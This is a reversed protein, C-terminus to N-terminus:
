LPTGNVKIAPSFAGSAHIKVTRKWVKDGCFAFLTNLEPGGLCTGIVRSRDPMPLIVQTPGDDACIQIGWRTAVLMQGEKAYCVSEAGADDEWDPVHLWFFREMNALSGDAQIQYSYVWKSRGDAVSLFGQDPRMALGTPLKIPAEISTPKGDKIMWIKGPGDAKEGAATVFLGGDPTALLYHGLVGKAAVAGKGSADYRMVNGTRSSVTYIEDQAGVALGSAHADAAFVTVKGDLGLHLIKGSQADIFFLEGKSNCAPSRLDGLGKATLEWNQGPLIVDRVRPASTGPQVPEPWGKWIFRMAEPFSENWGTCHGGNYIHFSYDYGSFKLAKDIEQDLLFWDGACNEMDHTATTLYARIPKAEFKRILTPFEHGGRFAVFSGSNAYVRSFADPREWAANFASIGGSSAGAICRDNGSDSLKLGFQKAVFPLIEETIFRAHNDGVGDYEFCRNRRGMMGNTTSLVDGPRVFVGITVPMDKAAILAELMAKEAPNYGDQRVYVCAPKSGDYQAPIFVTGVRKTGPFIASETFTFDKTVGKPVDTPLPQMVPIEVAIKSESPDPVSPMKAGDLPKLVWQLHPDDPNYSWIDQKAGPSKNGGLDDLGKDPAHKVLLSLTGNLNKKLSWLQWPKGGDTELLVPTGDDKGGEKAALVLTDSSSPQIAYLNNGRPILKWKQSAADSPVGLSVPEGGNSASGPAELNMAPPGSPSLTFLGLPAQAHTNRCALSGLFIIASIAIRWSTIQRFSHFLQNM